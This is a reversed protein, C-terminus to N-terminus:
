RSARMRQLVDGLMRLEQGYTAWDGARQAAVARDYHTRAEAALSALQANAQPAPAPPSTAGPQGPAAQTEEPAAANAAAGGFLRALAAELTNEMVIENQYAVVVRRLEPIRGGSGRLYLPRVYILSEQIPIVM